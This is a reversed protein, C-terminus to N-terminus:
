KRAKERRKIEAAINGEPWATFATLTYYSNIRGCEKRKRVKFDWGLERLERMRKQWDDQYQKMSAVVAIVQAPAELGAQHFAKLLEGIRRHPEDHATAARIQDEYPDM